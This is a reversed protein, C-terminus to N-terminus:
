LSWPERTLWPEPSGRYLNTKCIIKTVSDNNNMRHTTDWPRSQDLLITQDWPSSQKWQWPHDWPCNQDQRWSQEQQQRPLTTMIPGMPCIQDRLWSQEHPWSQDPLCNQNQKWSQQMTRSLGITMTTVRKSARSLSPERLWCLNRCVAFTWM